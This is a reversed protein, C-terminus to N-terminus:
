LSGPHHASLWQTCIWAGVRHPAGRGGCQLEQVRLLEMGAWALLANIPQTHLVRPGAVLGLWPGAHQPRARLLHGGAGVTM